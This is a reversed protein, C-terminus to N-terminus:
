VMREVSPLSGRHMRQHEKLIDEPMGHTFVETVEWLDRAPLIEVKAGVKAGRAEIWGTTYISAPHDARKLRCQYYQKM